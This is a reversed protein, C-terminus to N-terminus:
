RTRKLFALCGLALLSISAPEPIPANEFRIFAEDLGVLLSTQLKPNDIKPDVSIGFGFQMESGAFDPKSFEDFSVGTLGVMSEMKINQRTFTTSEINPTTLGLIKTYIKDDQKIFFRPKILANVPPNEIVKLVKISATIADIPGKTQPDYTFSNIFIPQTFPLADDSMPTADFQQLAFKGFSDNNFSTTTVNYSSDVPPHYFLLTTDATYTGENFDDEQFVVVAYSKITLFFISLILVFLTHTKLLNGKM